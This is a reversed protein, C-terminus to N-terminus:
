LPLPSHGLRELDGLFLFWNTKNIREMEQYVHWGVHVWNTTLSILSDPRTMTPPVQCDIRPCSGGAISVMGPFLRSIVMHFKATFCPGVPSPVVLSWGSRYWVFVKNWESRFHSWYFMLYKAACQDQYNENIPGSRTATHLHLLSTLLLGGEEATNASAAVVFLVLSPEM